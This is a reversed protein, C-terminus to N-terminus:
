QALNNVRCNCNYPKLHDLFADLNAGQAQVSLRERAWAAGGVALQTRLDASGIMTDIAGSITAPSVEPLYLAHEGSAERLGGTGSSILAAGGAHAELATRGFPETWKSPVLAIAAREYAAKVVPFPQQVEISVQAGLPALAAQVAAYYEPEVQVTSVIFRARWDPHSPLTRAVAQAAEIVGKTDICRGVCLIEQTRTQAPRWESFDFANYIVTQPVNVDPWAAAFDRACAESVHIIGALRRYRERKFLRHVQGTLSLRKYNSKQFNHTHLVVKTGPCRRAIASATPLHAQVVVVDPQQERVLRAVFNARSGTTSGVNEPFYSIACDDFPQEIAGAIVRTTAAFRSARVLDRVCLDISTARVPGFYMRRPMIQFIRPHQRDEPVHKSNLTEAEVFATAAPSITV